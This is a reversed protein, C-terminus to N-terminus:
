QVVKTSTRNYERIIESALLVNEIMLRGKLFATQNKSIMNMVVGKLRTALITSIVKYITNCCSIPRFETLKTAESKKPVLVITTVNIQGLLKGTQFFEQIAKIVDGGVIEWSTTYFEKPYGDPRSAKNDPLSFMIQKIEEASPIADMPANPGGSWRYPILDRLLDLEPAQVEGRRGLLESYFAVAHRKIHEVKDLRNGQDDVLYHIHNKAARASAIHHFYATNKDGLRLWRIRSKQRYLREEASVLTMYKLRILKEEEIQNVSPAEFLAQQVRKLLKEAEIVRQTQNDSFHIICPTHDSHGPIAFEAYANPFMLKWAGNTMARDLKVSLPNQSHNNCWTFSAGRGPMDSIRAALMCDHLDIMGAQQSQQQGHDSREYPNLCQNLDGLLVWPSNVISEYQGIFKLEEWPQRREILSTSGYVFTATFQLNRSPIVVGCTVAQNMTSYVTTKVSEEWVKSQSKQSKNTKRNTATVNQRSDRDHPNTPLSTTGEGKTKSHVSDIVLGSRDQEGSKDESSQKVITTNPLSAVGEGKEASHVLDIVLGSKDQEGSKDESSQNETEDLTVVKEKPAKVITGM